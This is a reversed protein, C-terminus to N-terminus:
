NKFAEEVQEVLTGKKNLTDIRRIEDYMTKNIRGKTLQRAVEWLEKSTLPIGKKLKDKIAM